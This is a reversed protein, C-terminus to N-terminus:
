RASLYGGQLAGWDAEAFHFISHEAHLKDLSRRLRELNRGRWRGPRRLRSHDFDILTFRGEDDILINHANLDAHWVGAAHFRAILRGLAQWRTASLPQECLVETLTLANPVRETILDARYANGSRVVRAAVPAPAPLGLRVIEALLHWERFARSREVGFWAYRDTLLSRLLGGRRYHRLVWAGDPTDLFFAKGRGSAEGAVMAREHWWDPDFHEDRAEPLRAGDWLMHSDGIRATRVEM